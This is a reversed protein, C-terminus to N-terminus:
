SPSDGPPGGGTGKDGASDSPSGDPGSPKRSGDLGATKLLQELEGSAAAKEVGQWSGYRERVISPLELWARRSEAMIEFARTLDMTEYDVTGYQPHAGVGFRQVQYALDSQLRYEQRARDEEATCSVVPNEASLTWRSVAATLAEMAVEARPSKM